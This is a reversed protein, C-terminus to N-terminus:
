LSINGSRCSTRANARSDALFQTKQFFETEEPRHCISGPQKFVDSQQGADGRTGGAPRLGHPVFKCRIEPLCLNLRSTLM